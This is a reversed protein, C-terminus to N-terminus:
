GVVDAAQSAGPDLEPDYFGDDDVGAPQPVESKRSRGKRAPQSATDNHGEAPPGATDPAGIADEGTMDADILDQDAVDLILQPLGAADWVAQTWAPLCLLCVWQTEGTEAFSIILDGARGCETFCPQKAM